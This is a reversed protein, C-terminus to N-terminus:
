SSIYAPRPTTPALYRRQGTARPANSVQPEQTVSPRGDPLVAMQNLIELLVDLTEMTVEKIQADNLAAGPVSSAAAAPPTVHPAVVATGGTWGGEFSPDDQSALWARIAEDEGLPQPEQVLKVVPASEEGVTMAPARAVRALTATGHAGHLRPEVPMLNWAAATSLLLLMTARVM